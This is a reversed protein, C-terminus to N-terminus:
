DGQGMEEQDPFTFDQLLKTKTTEPQTEPVENIHVQHCSKAESHGKMSDALESRTDLSM